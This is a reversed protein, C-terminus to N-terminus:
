DPPDAMEEGGPHPKQEFACFGAEADQQKVLLGIDDLTQYDFVAISNAIGTYTGNKDFYGFLSFAKGNVTGSVFM